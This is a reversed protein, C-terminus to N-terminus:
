RNRPKDAVIAPGFVIHKEDDFSLKLEKQEKFLMFDEEIAPKRVLSIATLDGCEVEYIPLM